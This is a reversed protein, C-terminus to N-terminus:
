FWWRYRRKNEAHLRLDDRYDARNTGQGYVGMYIVAMGFLVIGLGVLEPHTFDKAGAASFALYGGGAVCFTGFTFCVARRFWLWATALATEGLSAPRSRDRTGFYLPVAALLAIVVIAVVTSARFGLRAIAFVAVLAVFAFYAVKGM